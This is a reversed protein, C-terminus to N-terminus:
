ADALSQLSSGDTILTAISNVGDDIQDVSMIEEIEEVDLVADGIATDDAADLQDEKNRGAGHSSCTTTAESQSEEDGDHAAQNLNARTLRRGM